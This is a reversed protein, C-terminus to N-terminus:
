SPMIAPTSPHVILCNGDDEIRWDRYVILIIQLQERAKKKFDRHRKYNSGLQQEIARWPISRSKKSQHARYVEYTLWAYLDLGLASDRLARLGELEIPVVSHMIADYFKESLEIWNGFLSPREPDNNDWLMFSDEVILMDRTAVATLHKFNKEIEFTIRASFLRKIQKKLMPISGAPGGSPILELQRMFSSLSSGLELRRTKKLKVERTLWYLVLRPYVGYPIGVLKKEGTKRDKYVDSKITLRVSGNVREWIDEKPDSHPLNALVMVTPMYTPEGSYRNQQVEVASVIVQQRAASLPKM